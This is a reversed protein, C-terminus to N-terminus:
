NQTKKFFPELDFFVQAQLPMFWNTEICNFKKGNNKRVAKLNIFVVIEFTKMM